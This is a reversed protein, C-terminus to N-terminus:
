AHSVVGYVFTADRYTLFMYFNRTFEKEYDIGKPFGIGNPYLTHVVDDKYPETEVCMRAKFEKETLAPLFGDYQFDRGRLRPNEHMVSTLFRNYEYRSEVSDM